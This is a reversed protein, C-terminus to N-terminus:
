PTGCCTLTSTAPQAPPCHRGQAPGTRETEGGEMRQERGGIGGLIRVSPVGPVASLVSPFKSSHHVIVEWNGM